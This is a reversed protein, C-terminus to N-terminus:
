LSNLLLIHIINNLFTQPNRKGCDCSHDTSSSFRARTNHCFWLCQCIYCILNIKYLNPTHWPFKSTKSLSPSITALIKPGHQTKLHQVSIVKSTQVFQIYETISTTVLMNDNYISTHYMYTKNLKTSLLINWDRLIYCRKLNNLSQCYTSYLKMMAFGRDTESRRRHYLKLANYFNFIFAKKKHSMRAIFSYCDTSFFDSIGSVCPVM